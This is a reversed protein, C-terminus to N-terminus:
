DQKAQHEHAQISNTSLRAACFCTSSGCGTRSLFFATIHGLSSGARRRGTLAAFSRGSRSLGSGANSSENTTTRIQFSGCGLSTIWTVAVRAFFAVGAVAVQAFTVGAVASLSTGHLSGVSLWSSFCALRSRRQLIKPAAVCPQGEM